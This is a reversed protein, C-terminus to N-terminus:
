NESPMGEQGRSIQPRQVGFAWGIWPSVGVNRMRLQTGIKVGTARASWANFLCVIGHGGTNM